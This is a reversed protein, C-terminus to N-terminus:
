QDHRAEGRWSRRVQDSFYDHRRLASEARAVTRDVQEARRVEEPAPPPCPLPGFLARFWDFISM